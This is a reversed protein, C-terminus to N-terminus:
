ALSSKITQFHSWIFNKSTSESFYTVYAVMKSTTELWRMYILGSISREGVIPKDGQAWTAYIICMIEARSVESLVMPALLSWYNLAFPVLGKKGSKGVPRAAKDYSVLPMPSAIIQSGKIVVESNPMKPSRGWTLTYMAEISESMSQADVIGLGLVPFLYMSIHAATWNNDGLLLATGSPTIKIFFVIVKVRSCSKKEKKKTWLSDNFFLDFFLVAVCVSAPRLVIQPFVIHQIYIQMKQELTTEKNLQM